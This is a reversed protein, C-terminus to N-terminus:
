KSVELGIKKARVEPPQLMYSIMGNVRATGVKELYRNAACAMVLLARAGDPSVRGQEIVDRFEIVAGCLAANRGDSVAILKRLISGAWRQHRREVKPLPMAKLLALYISKPLEDSTGGTVQLSLSCREGGAGPRRIEDAIWSPLVPIPEEIEGEWRAGDPRVSGPAVAFRGMGLFDIGPRWSTRGAIPPDPQRFYHHEGNGATRIIPHAPLEGLAALTAVGDPGGHRDADLVVLGARGLEIGWAAGPSWDTSARNRWDAICPLKDWKKGTWVIRVPFVPLKLSMADGLAFLAESSVRKRITPAPAIEYAL